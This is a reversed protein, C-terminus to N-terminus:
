FSFALVVGALVAAFIVILDLVDLPEENRRDRLLGYVCVLITLGVLVYAAIALVWDVSANGASPGAVLLLIPVALLLVVGIVSAGSGFVTGRRVPASVPTPPLDEEVFRRFHATDAIPPRDDPSTSDM